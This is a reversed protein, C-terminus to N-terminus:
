KGEKVRGLGDIKSNVTINPVSKYTLNGVGSIDVDITKSSWVKANGIGSISNQSTESELDLADLNGAGSIKNQLQITKGKLTINGVGSVLVSTKENMVDLNVNGAGSVLVNLTAHTQPLRSKFSGVGDISIEKLLTNNVKATIFEDGDITINEEKNKLTLTNNKVERVFGDLLKKSGSIHIEDKPVDDTIEINVYSQNVIKDFAEIKFILTESPENNTKDKQRCSFSLVCLVFLLITNKM